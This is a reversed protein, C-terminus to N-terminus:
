NAEPRILKKKQASLNNFLFEINNELEANKKRLEEANNLLMFNNHEATRLKSKLEKNEDELCNITNLLVKKSERKVNFKFM